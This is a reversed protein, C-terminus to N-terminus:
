YVNARYTITEGPRVMVDFAVPPEYGGPLQIEIQHPGAELNLHQFVGDFDNVIGVFYGDAFVQADRPMGIIRLGGYPHGPIPDYYGRPTYGYPYAGNYGYYLGLSWSPRYVYPRYPVVTIIAPRIIRPAVRRYPSGYGYGYSRSGYYPYGGRHDDYDPRSYRRPVARDYGRPTGYGRPADYRRQAQPPAAENRRGENQRAADQRPGGDRPAQARPIARERNQQPPAQQAGQERQEGPGRRRHEQQAWAPAAALAGM